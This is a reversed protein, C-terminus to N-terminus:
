LVLIANLQNQNRCMVGALMLSKSNTKSIQTYIPQLVISSAPVYNHRIPKTEAPRLSLSLSILLDLLQEALQACALKRFPFLLRLTLM